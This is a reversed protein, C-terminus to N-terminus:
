PYPPGSTTSPPGSTPTTTSATSTTATASTTTTSATLQGRIAGGLFRLNHVNVYFGGPDALIAGIVSADVGRRCGSVGKISAPLPTAERMDFLPVVIGGVQGAGGEHIHAAFPGRIKTWTLDFCVTGAAADLSVMATGSGDPDQDQGGGTLDTALQVPQAVASGMITAAMLGVTAIAALAGTLRRGM